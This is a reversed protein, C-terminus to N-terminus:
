NTLSNNLKLEQIERWKTVIKLFMLVNGSATYALAISSKLSNCRM